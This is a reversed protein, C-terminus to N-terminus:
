SLLLGAILVTLLMSVPVALLWRAELISNGHDDMDTREQDPQVDAFPRQLGENRAHSSPGPVSDSQLRLRRSSPPYGAVLARTGCKDARRYGSVQFISFSM